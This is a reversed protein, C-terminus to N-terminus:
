APADMMDRRLIYLAIYNMQSSFTAEVVYNHSYSAVNEAQSQMNNVGMPRILSTHLFIMGQM